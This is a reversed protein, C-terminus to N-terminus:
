DSRAPAASCPVRSSARSAHPPPAGQPGATRCSARFCSGHRHITCVAAKQIRPWTRCSRRRCRYVVEPPGKRCRTAGRSANWTAPASRRDSRWAVALWPCAALKATSTPHRRIPASGARHLYRNRCRRRSTATSQNCKGHLTAIRARAPPSMAVAIAQSQPQRCHTRLRECTWRHRSSRERAIQASSRPAFNRSHPVKTQPPWFSRSM